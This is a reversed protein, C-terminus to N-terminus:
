FRRALRLGVGISLAGSNSTLYMLEPLSAELYWDGKFNWSALASVRGMFAADRNGSTNYFLGLEITAGLHIPTVWPSFLYAGGVFVSFASVAGFGIDFGGRLELGNVGEFGRGVRIGVTGLIGGDGGNGNTLIPRLDVGASIMTLGDANGYRDRNEYAEAERQAAEEAERRAAEEAERAEQERRAAEEAELRAREEEELQRQADADGQAARGETDEGALALGDEGIGEPRLMAQLLASLRDRERVRYVEADLEEVRTDSAYGARLTIWYKLEGHDHVIPVVVWEAQRMEAIARMDNATEPLAEAATDMGGAETIPEHSLARIAEHVQDEIRELDLTAADGTARLVVVRDAQAVSGSFIAALSFLTVGHRLLARIRSRANVNFSTM